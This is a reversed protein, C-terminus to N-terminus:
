GNAEGTQTNNGNAAGESTVTPEGFNYKIFKMIEYDGAENQARLATVSLEFTAPDGEAEMTFTVESSIKGKLLIWQYAEDAGTDESRLLTDGVFKYTGPFTSPSITIEYANNKADQKVQETFFLRVKCGEAWEVPKSGEVVNGEKDVNVQYRAGTTLDIASYAKPMDHMAGYTDAIKGTPEKTLINSVFNVTVADEATAQKIAGGMMIRLFEPSLLADELTLTIEKSYDWSILKPNGWGGTADTQEATQEITSVKLSDLYLVLDGKKVTGNKEDELAFVSVNSVEKLGYRDFISAM